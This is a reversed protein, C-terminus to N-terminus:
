GVERMMKEVSVMRERLDALDRAIKHQEDAIAQQAATAERALTRYADDRALEARAKTDTRAVSFIQWMAVVLVVAVAAVIGLIFITNWGTEGMVSGM